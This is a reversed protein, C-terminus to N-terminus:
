RQVHAAACLSRLQSSSALEISPNAVLTAIQVSARSGATM